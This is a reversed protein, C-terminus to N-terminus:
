EHRAFELHNRERMQMAAVNAEEATDFFRCVAKGDIKIRAKYKGAQRSFQVGKYGTSNDARRKQNRMNQQHTCARLNEGRCDYTARNVHDVYRADETTHCLLRHLYVTKMKEGIRKVARAYGHEHAMWCHRKAIEKHETDILFFAGGATEIVTIGTGAIDTYQNTNPIPM